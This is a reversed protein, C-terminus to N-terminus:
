KDVMKEALLMYPKLHVRVVKRFIANKAIIRAIPPSVEYYIKVLREGIESKILYMDRFKSLRRVDGAMETGYAATAIFCGSEDLVINGWPIEIAEPMKFCGVQLKQMYMRFPGYVIVREYSAGEYLTVLVQCYADSDLENMEVEIYYYGNMPDALRYREYDASLSMWGGISTMDNWYSCVEATPETVSLTAYNGGSTYLNCSATLTVQIDYSAAEIRPLSRIFAFGLVGTLLLLGPLRILLWCFTRNGRKLKM